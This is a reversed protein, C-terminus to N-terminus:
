SSSSSRQRFIAGWAFLVIIAGVSAGIIGAGDGARYWGVSQGLFTAVFAGAVGLLTTLLLGSPEPRGSVLFRAILGAILGVFLTSILGM